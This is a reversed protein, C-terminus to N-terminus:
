SRENVKGLSINCNQPKHTVVEKGKFDLLGDKPPPRIDFNWVLLTFINRLEVYGLKRGFCGRVGGGFAQMPAARSDFEERGQEGEVLWREPRFEGLDTQNWRRHDEKFERSSKSRKSEDVPMAPSTSSPGICLLQVDVGKPIFHGLVVTDTTTTRSNGSVICCHRLVEDMFADLYPCQDKAISQATPQGTSDDLSFSKGLAERLKQQKDSHKALYKLGWAVTTGVSEFGAGLFITLEDHMSKSNHQPTRGEKRALAIEREVVLEAASRVTKTSKTTSSKDGSFKMWAAQINASVLRDKVARARRLSPYLNVALWHHWYGFPSHLPIELSHFLRRLETFAEPAPARPMEVIADNQTLSDIGALYNSQSKCAGIEEGFTAAWITDITCMQIDDEAPFAAGSALRQKHRWLEILDLTKTYVLPAAINNLFQASMTDAMLRRNARWQDHTPLSAQANPFLARFMDSFFQSRDFERGRRSLIDQAERADSLIVWPKCFPRLFIQFIPSDLEECRRVCFTSLMGTERYHKLADPIDGFISQANKEVYPIGPIPKPLAARYLRVLAIAVFGVLLLAYYAM